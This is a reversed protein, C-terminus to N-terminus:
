RLARLADVFRTDDQPLGAPFRSLDFCRVVRGSVREIEEFLVTTHFLCFSSFSEAREPPISAWGVPDGFPFLYPVGVRDEGWLARGSQPVGPVFDRECIEDVVKEFIRVCRIDFGQGTLKEIGEGIGVGACVIPVRIQLGGLLRCVREILTGSFIVDDALVVERVGSRQIRRVQHLISATGPRYRIGCDKGCRDVQRALELSLDAQVYVGDLSLVPLDAEALLTSLGGRMEEESVSLFSPFVGKMFLTFEERWGAFFVSSPIQFGRTKAWLGLLLAVDQSVVYPAM